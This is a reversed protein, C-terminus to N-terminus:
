CVKGDGSDSPAEMNTSRTGTNLFSATVGKRAWITLFKTTSSTRNGGTMNQSCSEMIANLGCGQNQCKTSLFFNFMLVCNITYQAMAQRAHATLISSLFLDVM